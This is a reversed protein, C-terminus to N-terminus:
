SGFTREMAERVQSVGYGREILIAPTGSAKCAPQITEWASHSLFRALFIVIGVGGGEVRKAVAEVRRVRWGSIWEVRKFGFVERYRKATKDRRDGGVIFVTQGETKDRYPWDDPLTETDEDAEIGEAEIERQYARINKRLAKLRKEKDLKRLHPLLAKILRPDRTPIKAKLCLLTAKVVDKTVVEEATVIEILRRLEKEPNPPLPSDFGIEEDESLEEHALEGWWFRADNIWSGRDPTHERMLGIVFGPRHKDSYATLASFLGDLANAMMPYGLFPSAEDQLHRCRAVLLGFLAKQMPADIVTWGRSGKVTHELLNLEKYFGDLTTIRSPPGIGDLPGCSRRAPRRSAL